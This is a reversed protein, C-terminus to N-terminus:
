FSTGNGWAEEFGLNEAEKVLLVQEFITRRADHHHNEYNCFLGTKM